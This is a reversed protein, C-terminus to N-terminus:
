DQWSFDRMQRFAHEVLKEVVMPGGPLLVVVDDPADEDRLHTEIPELDM